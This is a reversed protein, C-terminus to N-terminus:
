RPVVVGRTPFRSAITRDRPALLARDTAKSSDPVVTVTPFPVAGAPHTGTDRLPHTRRLRSAAGVLTAAFAGGARRVVALLRGRTSAFDLAPSTSAARDRGTADTLEGARAAAMIAPDELVAGSGEDDFASPGIACVATVAIPAALAGNDSEASTGVDFTGSRAAGSARARAVTAGPVASTGSARSRPHTRTRM